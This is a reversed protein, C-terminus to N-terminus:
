LICLMVAVCSVARDEMGHDKFEFDAVQVNHLKVGLSFCVTWHSTAPYSLDDWSYANCAWNAVLITSHLPTTGPPPTAVSGVPTAQQPEHGRLRRSKRTPRQPLPESTAM